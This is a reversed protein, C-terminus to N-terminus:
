FTLAGDQGYSGNKWFKKFHEVFNNEKFCNFLLYVIDKKTNGCLDAETDDISHSNVDFLKKAGHVKDYFKSTDISNFKTFTEIIRRCPNLLLEPSCQQYDYLTHLEEWLSEYSTKFDESDKTLIKFHTQKGDTVFRIFKCKDYRKGYKVNLYFHKNHTLLIFHDSDKLSKMLKQLEDIILYQMADDNSNMPDDFVIIRDMQTVGNELDNLKEIFYLFAIINKEGTSLETINRADGSINNKVRYYGHTGEQEDTYHELSFSVLNKLKGNIRNALIAENKTKSQLEHIKREYENIQSTYGNEGSIKDNYANFENQAKEVNKQAAELKVIHEEYKFDKKESYVYHKKLREMEEKKRKVLDNSNNKEVLVNYKLIIDNISKIDNYTITQMKEFLHKRKEEITSKLYNLFMITDGKSAEFEQRLKNIEDVSDAYFNTSGIEVSKLKEMMEKLKTSENSLETEFAKVEDASFVSQLEEFVTDSIKNGCFSCIEGKNHIEFGRKAFERKESNGEIRNVKVRELVTKELLLNVEDILENKSINEVFIKQAIKTESNIILESKSIDEKELPAANNIDAIFNNKNYNTGSIVRPNEISKIKKASQTYFNEIENYLQHYERKAVQLRTFYNSENPDEPQILEKNIREIEGDIIEIKEKISEIEKNIQTNEEGLVVANLRKNADIINNFGDFVLVNYISNMGKLVNTLTSKGTGNKGFIFTVKKELNLSSDAFVSEKSLDLIM